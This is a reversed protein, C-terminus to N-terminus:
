APTRQWRRLVAYGVLFLVVANLLHWGFHTGVPLDGCLPLDITRLTLSVAFVATAALLYNGFPAVHAPTTFRAALGFLLLGVLAPLYGGLAAREGGIAVAAAGIAYSLGLYAPAALWAWRWPVGWMWHVLNVVAVLIFVLIALSDAASTAETAFGHFAASALGVVGLLLPLLRVSFPVPRNQGALLWLLLGSACLFALNSLLNLPEGFLGPALRECYLDVYESMAVITGCGAAAAPTSDTFPQPVDRTLWLKRRGCRVRVLSINM